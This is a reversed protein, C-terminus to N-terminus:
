SSADAATMMKTLPRRLSGVEALKKVLHDYLGEKIRKTVFSWNPRELSGYSTEIARIVNSMMLIEGPGFPAWPDGWDKPKPASAGQDQAETLAPASALVLDYGEVNPRGPVSIGREYAM